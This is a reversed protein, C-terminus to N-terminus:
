QGLSVTGDPRSDTNKSSHADSELERAIPKPTCQDRTFTIRLPQFYSNIAGDARFLVTAPPDCNDCGQIQPSHISEVDSEVAEAGSDSPTPTRIGISAAYMPPSGLESPPVHEVVISRDSSENSSPSPPDPYVLSTPSSPASPLQKTPHIPATSGTRNFPRSLGFSPTPISPIRSFQECALEAANRIREAYVAQAMRFEPSNPDADCINKPITGTNDATVPQRDNQSYTPPSPVTAPGQLVLGGTAGATANYALNASYTNTEQVIRDLAARQERLRILGDITIRHVPLAATGLRLTDDHEGTNVLYLLEFPSPTFPGTYHVHDDNYMQTPPSPLPRNHLNSTASGQNSM